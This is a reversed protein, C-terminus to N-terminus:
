GLMSLKSVYQSNDFKLRFTVITINRGAITKNETSLVTTELDLKYIDKSIEDLQGLLFFYGYIVDCKTPIVNIKCKGMVYHTFGRRISRYVLVCGKENVETLYMSPSKM